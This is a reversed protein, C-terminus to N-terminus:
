FNNINVIKNKENETALAVIVLIEGYVAYHFM